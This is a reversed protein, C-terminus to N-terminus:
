WVIYYSCFLRLTGKCSSWSTTTKNFESESESALSELNPCFQASVLSSVPINENKESIKKLFNNEIFWMDSYNRFILSQESVPGLHGFADKQMKWPWGMEKGDRFIMVSIIM